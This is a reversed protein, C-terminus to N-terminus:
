KKARPRVIRVEVVVLQELSDGLADVVVSLGTKLETADVKKRDRTVHTAEDLEMSITRGDRSQTVALTKATVRAITGIVRYQDHAAAPAAGVMLVALLAAMIRRRTM